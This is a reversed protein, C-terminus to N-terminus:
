VLHHTVLTLTTLLHRYFSTPESWSMPGRVMEGGDGGISIEVGRSIMTV